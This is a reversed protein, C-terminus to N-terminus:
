ANGLLRDRIDAAYGVSDHEHRRPLPPWCLAIASIGSPTGEPVAVERGDILMLVKM